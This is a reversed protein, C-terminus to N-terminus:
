HNFLFESSNVLTWYVDEYPERKETAKLHPLFTSRERASPLRSLTSLFMWELRDEPSHKQALITSLRGSKGVIGQNVTGGNMLLLAQQITGNFTGLDINEEDGFYKRLQQLLQDKSTASKQAAVAKPDATKPDVVAKPDAPPPPADEGNLARGIASVMQEPTLPRTLAVAFLKEPPSKKPSMRSSLQYARSGAIKWVLWKLDYGWSVFERSLEDLMEPHSPKFRGSFDEIPHVIGRGFFHAWYRNVLARAFQLSEPRELLRVFEERRSKSPDAPTGDLWCPKATKRAKGEGYSVESKPNDFLEVRQDKQDKPDVKRSQVQAFFAVMGYFDDQTYKDFPHDHCQACQIQTGLFTKSVKSAMNIAGGGKTGQRLLFNVEGSEQNVGRATLLRAAMQDYPLNSAFCEDRLWTYLARKSQQRIQNDYGVLIDEWVEAWHHAYDPRALVEQIKRARKDPRSDRIFAIAEEATPITGLVDLSLRRLFEGDSAMEASAVGADEWAKELHRDILTIVSARPTSQAGGVASAVLLAVVFSGTRM